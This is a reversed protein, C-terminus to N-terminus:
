QLSTELSAISASRVEMSKPLSYHVVFRVDPKNIGTYKLVEHIGGCVCMSIFLFVFCLVYLCM